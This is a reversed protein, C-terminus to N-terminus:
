KSKRIKGKYSNKKSSKSELNTKQRKNKKNSIKSKRRQSNSRRKALVNKQLSMKRSKDVRQSRNM